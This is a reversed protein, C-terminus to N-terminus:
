DKNLGNGYEMSIPQLNRNEIPIGQEFHGKCFQRNRISTSRLREPVFNKRSKEKSYRRFVIYSHKHNISGQFITLDEHLM